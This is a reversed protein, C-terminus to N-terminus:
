DEDDLSLRSEIIGWKELQILLELPDEANWASIEWETRNRGFGKDYVAPIKEVTWVICRQSANLQRLYESVKALADNTGRRRVKNLSAVLYSGPCKTNLQMHTHLNDINTIISQYADKSLGFTDMEPTHPPYLPHRFGFRLIRLRSGQEATKRCELRRNHEYRARNTTSPTREKWARTGRAEFLDKKPAVNAYELRKNVFPDDEEEILYKAYTTCRTRSNINARMWARFYPDVGYRDVNANMIQRKPTPIANPWLACPKSRDRVQSQQHHYGYARMCKTSLATTSAVQRELKPRPAQEYKALPFDDIFSLRQGTRTDAGGEPVSLDM